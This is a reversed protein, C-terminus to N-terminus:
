HALLVPVAAHEMVHRTMGGFLFQRYHGHTYAGMVILGAGVANAQALLSPGTAKDASLRAAAIGHWSLYRLLEKTDTHHKSEPAAFIEVCGEFECLFPLAFHVARAAERSGNWAILPRHFINAPAGAPVMLAPRGTEFLATELAMASSNSAGGRAVLVLDSLRGFRAIVESEYGLVDRWQTSPGHAAIGSDLLPLKCQAHWADFHQRARGAAASVSSEVPEALLRDAVGAHGKNGTTGRADFRVHLVDVHADFRLAIQAAHDLVIRDSSSGDVYALM